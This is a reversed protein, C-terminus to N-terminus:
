KGKGVELQYAEFRDAWEPPPPYRGSDQTRFVEKGPGTQVETGRQRLGLAKLARDLERQAQPNAPNDTSRLLQQWQKLFKEADARKWGLRDLLPSKEKAMEEELTQLALSTQKKAYDLNAADPTDKATEPTGPQTPTGAAKGAGGGKASSGDAPKDSPQSQDSPQAKDSPQSKDSTQPKGAPDQPPQKGPGKAEASKPGETKNGKDGGDKKEGAQPPQSGAQADKPNTEPQQGEGPKSDAKQPDGGKGACQQDRKEQQDLKDKIDKAAQDTRDKLDQAQKEEPSKGAGQQKAAEDKM